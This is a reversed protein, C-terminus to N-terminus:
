QILTWFFTLAVGGALVQLWLQAPDKFALVGVCLFLGAALLCYWHLDQTTTELDNAGARKRTAGIIAAAISRDSERDLTFYSGKGASAIALLSRADLVARVRFSGSTRYAPAEPEPILGGQATGVGVVFVPVERSRTAALARQIEGSWAQGDSVLVFAQANRSRGRLLQDKEILRLGWNLGVEINTDWSTDDRLPFPSQSELHDLFFFLTNPDSTLRVQAAPVHAFLALAVRDNRWELSEALVRLFKMSRRWRDPSVDRVHMSASGDQLIILDVGAQRVMALTATPQALGLITLALGALLCLWFVLPGFSGFREALPVM